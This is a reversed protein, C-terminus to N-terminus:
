EETLKRIQEKAQANSLSRLNTVFRKTEAPQNYEKPMKDYTLTFMLIPSNYYLVKLRWENYYNTPAIVIDGTEEKYRWLREDCNRYTIPSGNLYSGTESYNLATGNKEFVWWYCYFGGGYVPNYVWEKSDEMWTDLYRVDWIAGETLDAILQQHDIKTADFGQSLAELEETTFGDVDPGAAVFEDDECAVLCCAALLLLLYKKM